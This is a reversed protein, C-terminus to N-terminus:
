HKGVQGAGNVDQKVTPDGIYEVSGVGSIEADLEESVNVIASGAGAVDIKVEKSQLDKAQYIGSGSINIEQEDSKGDMRVNGAGSITVALSDTKISEAEVNASGLVELASLDKVTLRYTIPGTTHITNFESGIILRDNVVKTTVKPIVDEEAEVTLSESGTQEISLNGVGRLEVEEFGRVNRSERRAKAPKNTKSNSEQISTGASSTGGRSSRSSSSTVTSISGDKYTLNLTGGSISQVSHSNEGVTLEVQLDGDSSIECDLSRGKLDYTISKPVDGGIERSEENGITCSGSFEEGLSGKIELRAQDKDTDGSADANGTSCGTAAAALFVAWAFVIATNTRM